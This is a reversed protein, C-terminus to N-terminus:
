PHTITAMKKYGAWQEQQEEETFGQDEKIFAPIANAANHKLITDLVQKNSGELQINHIEVSTKDILQIQAISQGAPIHIMQETTNM